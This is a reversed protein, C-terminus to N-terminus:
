IKNPGESNGQNEESIQCIYIAANYKILKWIVFSKESCCSMHQHKRKLRILLVCCACCVNQWANPMCLLVTCQVLATSRLKPKSVGELLLSIGVNSINICVRYCDYHYTNIVERHTYTYILIDLPQCFMCGQFHLSYWLHLLVIGWALIKKLAEDRHM